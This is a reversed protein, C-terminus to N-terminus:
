SALGIPSERRKNLSVGSQGILFIRKETLSGLFPEVGNSPMDQLQLQFSLCFPSIPSNRRRSASSLGSM